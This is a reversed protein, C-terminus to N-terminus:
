LPSIFFNFCQVMITIIQYSLFIRFSTKKFKIELIKLFSSNNEKNFFFFQKRQALFFELDFTVMSTFQFIQYVSWWVTCWSCSRFYCCSCTTINDYKFILSIKNCAKHVNIILFNNAFLMCSLYSAKAPTTSLVAEIIKPM